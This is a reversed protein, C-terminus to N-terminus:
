WTGRQIEYVSKRTVTKLPLQPSIGCALCIASREEREFTDFGFGRSVSRGPAVRGHTRTTHVCGPQRARTSCPSLPIPPPRSSRSPCRTSLLSSFALHLLSRSPHVVTPPASLLHERTPPLSLSRPLSLSDNATCCSRVRRLPIVRSSSRGERTRSLPLFLSSFHGFSPYSWRSFSLCNMPPAILVAIGDLNACTCRHARARACVCRVVRGSSEWWSSKSFDISYLFLAGHHALRTSAREQGERVDKRV